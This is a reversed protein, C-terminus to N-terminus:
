ALDWGPKVEADFRGSGQSLGTQTLTAAEAFAASMPLVTVLGGLL